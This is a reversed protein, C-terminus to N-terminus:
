PQGALQSKVRPWDADGPPAVTTGSSAGGPTGAVPDTGGATTGGAAGAPTSAGPPLPSAPTLYTVNGPQRMGLRGEATAIITQPAELQAVQLRLRSYNAQAASVKTNLDDLKFQRQAMDVHLFVLAFAIVVSVLAGGGLLARARAPGDVLRRRPRDVVELHRERGRGPATDPAVEAALAKAAGTTTARQDRGRGPPTTRRHAPGRGDV